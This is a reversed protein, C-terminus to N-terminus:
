LTTAPSRIDVLPEHRIQVCFNSLSFPFVSNADFDLIDLMGLFNEGSRKMCWNPSSIMLDRFRLATDRLTFYPECAREGCHPM